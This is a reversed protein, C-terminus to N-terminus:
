RLLHSLNMTVSFACYTQGLFCFLAKSSAFAFSLEQMKICKLRLRREMLIRHHAPHYSSCNQVYPFIPFIVWKRWSCFCPSSSVVTPDLSLFQPLLPFSFLHNCKMSLSTSPMSLIHVFHGRSCGATPLAGPGGTFPPSHESRPCHQSKLAM